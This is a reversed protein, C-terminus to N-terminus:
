EIKELSDMKPIDLVFEKDICNTCQFPAEIFINPPYSSLLCATLGVHQLIKRGSNMNWNQKEGHHSTM